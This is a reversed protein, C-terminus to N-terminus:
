VKRSPVPTKISLRDGVKPHTTQVGAITLWTVSRTLAPGFAFLEDPQLARLVSVAERATMGLKDATRRVDVDL